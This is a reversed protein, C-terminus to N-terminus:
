KEATVVYAHSVASGLWPLRALMGRIAGSELFDQIAGFGAPLIPVWTLHVRRFGTQRFAQMLRKPSDFRVRLARGRSEEFMRKMIDPLCNANLADVLVRGNPRVVRALERIAREPNSLAQLVGFCIAGDCSASALPLKTVDAALWVISGSASRDRAKLLSPLSYDLGIVDQGTSVMARAYTGAGCGADLWISDTARPRWTRLFNRLRAELGVQSWGAIGADHDHDVAFEEFRRRWETEFESSM